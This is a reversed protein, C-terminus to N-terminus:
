YFLIRRLGVKHIISLENDIQAALDNADVILIYEPDAEVTGLLEHPKRVQKSFKEIKNMIEQLDPSKHLQAVDFITHGKPIQELELKTPKVDETEMEDEEQYTFILHNFHKLDSGLGRIAVELRLGLLFPGKM